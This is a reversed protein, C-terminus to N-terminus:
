VYHHVIDVLEQMRKRYTHEELTRRQGARAIAKREEEHALYYRVLKLCEQPNRYAVVEKGVEFMDSLDAKWDTVLMAGVGTSEYLRINNAHSGAVDIHRNLTIKSDRLIQYMDVGWAMGKYHSRISSSRRLADIGRGWIALETNECLYELLLRRGKHDRSLTGVFSCGINRENEGLRDLVKPEFGLRHLEAPVGLQRFYDVFKPLSSLVLDYCGYDEGPPLPAAHQGVLLGVYPKIELLFKTPIGEMAQNLLIEPKYSKIQATLINTFWSPRGNFAHLLLLSFYKLYRLPTRAAMHGLRYMAWPVRNRKLLQEYPLGHDQAWAVQMFENNVHVDMVEHNLKRLNNSYFDALGFLSEMRKQLQQDYPLTELGPHRVYLWNLFDPYDTNLILFKM